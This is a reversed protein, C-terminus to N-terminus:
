GLLRGKATTFEQVSLAGSAHLGALQVLKSTPSSAAEASAPGETLAAAFQSRVGHAILQDLFEVCKRAQGMVTFGSLM